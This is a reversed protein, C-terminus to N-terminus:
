KDFRIRPDVLAVCIDSLVNGILLLFSAFLLNTLFVPYDRGVLSSFSLMGFGNIDFIKEILFSGTLLAGVIHGFGTALPVLSIRFAHGMVAKRFPVGKAIATRVPDSGLNEILSNKMLMAMMALSGVTMAFLPLATHRVIDMTKAWPGLSAFDPGTFGSHPFWHLKFAFVFLILVGIIYGPISFAFFLAFSTITDLVGGHKVAKLVGLPIAVLYTLLVSWFGFWLSIPLRDAIVAIVPKGHTFSTGFEGELVGSFGTQYIKVRVPKTPDIPGHRNVFLQTLGTVFGANEVDPRAISARWSKLATRALKVAAARKAEPQSAIWTEIRQALDAPATVKPTADGSREVQVDFQFPTDDENEVPAQLTVTKVASTKEPEFTAYGKNPLEKPWAGLWEFFAPVPPRDFGYFEKLQQTQEPTLSDGGGGTPGGRSGRTEMAARKAAIAQELPGGPVFRTIIFAILLIGFLTPPLLLLRRLLYHRM